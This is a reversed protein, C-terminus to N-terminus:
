SESGWNGNIVGFYRSSSEQPPSLTLHIVSAAMSSNDTKRTLVSGYQILFLGIGNLVIGLSIFTWGMGRGADRAGQGMRMM